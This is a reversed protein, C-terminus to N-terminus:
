DLKDMLVYSGIGIGLSIIGILFCHNILGTQYFIRWVLLGIAWVRDGAAKTKIVPNMIVAIIGGLLLFVGIVFGGLTLLALIGGLVSSNKKSQARVASLDAGCHPCFGFTKTIEKGCKYCFTM